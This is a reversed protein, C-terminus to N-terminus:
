AADGRAGEPKIGLRLRIFDGVEAESLISEIGRHGGAGGGVRIRVDGLPIDLDDYAVILSEGACGHREFVERVALGSLNMFSQPKVVELPEGACRIEAVLAQGRGLYSGDAQRTVADAVRFGLNHRTLAYRVSPNGLGVLARL